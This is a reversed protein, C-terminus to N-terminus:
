HGPCGKTEATYVISAIKWGDANKVLSFSDVGCHAAKGDLLFEYEGWVQAIRGHVLVDAPRTFREALANTMASVRSVFVEAETSTTPADNRVSYLRADALLTSRMGAADHHSMGDFLKQVVAQAASDDASQAGLLVAGFLLVIPVFRISM